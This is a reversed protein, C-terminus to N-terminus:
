MEARRKAVLTAVWATEQRPESLNLGRLGRPKATGEESALSRRKMASQDRARLARSGVLDKPRGAYAGGACLRGTLMRHQFTPASM